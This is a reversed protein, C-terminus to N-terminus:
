VTFHQLTRNITDTVAQLPVQQCAANHCMGGATTGFPYHHTM